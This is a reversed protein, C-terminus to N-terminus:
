PVTGERSPRPAPTPALIEGSGGPVLMTPVIVRETPGASGDLRGFLLEAAATAIGAVDQLVLTLGPDLLDALPLEDFGVLAVSRQRARRHLARVAGMTVLNQSAFLATPPDDASLVRDVAAAADESSRLGHVVVAEDIVVGARDLAEGYGAYRERATSITSLDGLYGIRRHGHALLHEVAQRAGERNATLVCDADLFSPPRDVFVIPTGSRVEDALYSQDTGAPVVILGDVRRAVFSAALERERDPSEDVSGAFVVVGREHAVDEVARHLASSFPNAVDELLLGITQTKGDTRRLSSATLNPQYNLTRAAALVRESLDPSVGPEANVVRSVTKISVGSLAAVDRMTPRARAGADRGITTV